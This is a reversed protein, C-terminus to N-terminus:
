FCKEFSCVCFVTINTNYQFCQAANEEYKYLKEHLNSYKQLSDLGFFRPHKEVESASVSSKGESSSHRVCVAQNWLYFRTIVSQVISRM